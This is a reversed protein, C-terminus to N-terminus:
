VLNLLLVSHLLACPFIDVVYAEWAKINLDLPISKCNQPHLCRHLIWSPKSYLASILSLDSKAWWIFVLGIDKDYIHRGKGLQGTVSAVINIHFFYFVFVFCLDCPSFSFFLLVYVLIKHGVVIVFHIYTFLQLVVLFLITFIPSLLTEM